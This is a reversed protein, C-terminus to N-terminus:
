RPRRETNAIRWTVGAIPLFMIIIAYLGAAVAAVSEALRLGVDDLPLNQAAIGSGIVLAALLLVGLSEAFLRRPM